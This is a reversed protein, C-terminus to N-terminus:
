MRAIIKGYNKTMITQNKEQEKKQKQIMVHTKLRRQGKEKRPLTCM